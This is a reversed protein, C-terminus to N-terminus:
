IAVKEIARLPIDFGGRLEVFNGALEIFNSVVEVKKGNALRVILTIDDHDQYTQNTASRLGHDRVERDTADLLVDETGFHQKSLEEPTMPMSKNLEREWNKIQEGFWDWAAETWKYNKHIHAVTEKEVVTYIKGDTVTALIKEADAKSIRGDGAGRVANNAIELLYGELKKGEVQKYYNM